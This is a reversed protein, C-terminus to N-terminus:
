TCLEYMQNDAYKNVFYAEFTDLSYSFHFDVPLYTAGCFVPLLHTGQLVSDLHIVTTLRCHGMFHPRVKWMSTEKDPHSGYKKFWEVLTCLYIKRQHVFSSYSM